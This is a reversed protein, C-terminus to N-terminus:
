VTVQTTDPQASLRAPREPRRRAAFRLWCPLADLPNVALKFLSFAYALLGVYLANIYPFVIMVDNFLSKELLNKELSFYSLTHITTTITSDILIAVNFIFYPNKFLSKADSELLNFLNLLALAVFVTGSYTNALTNIHAMLGGAITADLLALPIFLFQATRIAIRTPRSSTLRYYAQGLFYVEAATFFHYTFLNNHFAITAGRRIAAGIFIVILFNYVSRFASPLNSERVSAVALPIIFYLEAVRDLVREIDM